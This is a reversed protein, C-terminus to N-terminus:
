KMKIIKNFDATLKNGNIWDYLTVKRLSYYNEWFTELQSLYQSKAAEEEQLATNLDTVSINGAEFRKKIINYREFSIDQAKQSLSCQESQFNLMIVQRKINQIYSSQQQEIQTKALELNSEAVKVRGKHVGWDFIPLTLTLGVIENDKMHSYAAYFNDATKSLGAQASLQIQIGKASRAEALNQKASLLSLEQDIQNSSNTLAAHLAENSNIVIDQINSPPNLTVGEYDVIRLYSFLNFLCQEMETKASALGVKTNLMSLELQLLDSKTITGLAYRKESISYLRKLDENKSVNQNYNVQAIIASFFLQTTQVAVAEIAELYVRKAKDYEKPSTKKRWKMENYSRLPQTYSIRFPQSNFTSTKYDFQYLHYLMSQLSLVGGLSTIQQDVSFTLTNDLSNNDVYNIKGDNYNRAEVKSHNFNMLGGQLNVSPKLEALFSRYTWYSSKFSFRALQADFSNKQAIMIADNLSFLSKSNVFCFPIGILITLIAISKNRRM